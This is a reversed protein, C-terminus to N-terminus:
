KALEALEHETGVIFLRPTALVSSIFHDGTRKRKGFEQATLVHPNIERGLKAAMGSLVGAVRRLGIGGIVMLDIDSEPGATEAAVSGFVFAVQVDPQRLARRFVNALGATKLVLNRIDTYAPNNRNARYYVRNGDRRANVLGVKELRALEQQITRVALHSQRALERLHVERAEVGFLLRLIEAKRKSSVIDVLTMMVYAILM